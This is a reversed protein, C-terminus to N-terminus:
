GNGGGARVQVVSQLIRQSATETNTTAGVGSPPQDQRIAPAVSTTADVTISLAITGGAMGGLLAAVVLTTSTRTLWPIPQHQVKTHNTVKASTEQHGKSNHQQYLGATGPVIQPTGAVPQSGAIWNEPGHPRGLGATPNHDPRRGHHDQPM